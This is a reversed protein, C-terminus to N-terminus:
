SHSLSLSKCRIKEDPTMGSIMALSAIFELADVLKNEDDDLLRFLADIDPALIRETVSLYELCSSKIIESFEEM